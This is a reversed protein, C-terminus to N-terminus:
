DTRGETGGERRAVALVASTGTPFPLSILGWVSARETDSEGPENPCYYCNWKCSFRQTKGGVEPYPSTLVTVVLVGSNSKGKKRTLLSRLVGSRVVAADPLRGAEDMMRYIHLLQSKKPCQAAHPPALPRHISHGDHCTTAGFLAHAPLSAPRPAPPSPAIDHRWALM